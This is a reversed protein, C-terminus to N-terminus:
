QRYIIQKSKTLIVGKENSNIVQSELRVRVRVRIFISVLQNLSHSTWAPLSNLESHMNVNSFTKILDFM